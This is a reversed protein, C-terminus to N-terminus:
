PRASLVPLAPRLYDGRPHRRYVVVVVRVAACGVGAHRWRLPHPHRRQGIGLLGSARGLASLPRGRRRLGTPALKEGLWRRILAGGLWAQLTAGGAILMAVLGDNTTLAANQLALLIHLLLSGLWVGPLVRNGLHLTVALALGAAPFVPSAYGNAVGAATGIWGLAVYALATLINYTSLTAPANPEPM